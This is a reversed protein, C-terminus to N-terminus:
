SAEVAGKGEAELAVLWGPKKGKGNWVLSKDTPHRYQHGVHYAPSKGSRTRGKNLDKLSLGVSELLSRAEDLAKAKRNEDRHKLLGECQEIVARLEGDQLESLTSNSIM